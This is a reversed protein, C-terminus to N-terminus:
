GDTWVPDAIARPGGKSKYESKSKRGRLCAVAGIRARADTSAQDGVIRM